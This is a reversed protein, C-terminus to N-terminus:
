FWTIGIVDIGISKYISIDAEIVTCGYDNLRYIMDKVSKDLDLNILLNSLNNSKLNILVDDIGYVLKDSADNILDKIRNILEVADKNEDISIIDACKEYISFITSSNIEDTDVVKKIMKSFEKYNEKIYKVVKQKMQAPGACIMCEVNFKTKNEIMFTDIMKESIKKIYLHEKEDRIRGIRQASQGGKKQRKQLKIEIDSVCRYDIHSGSKIMRYIQYGNGYILVIGYAKEQCYMEQIHSLEFQKSCRYYAHKLRKIPEFIVSCDTDFVINPKRLRELVYCWVM